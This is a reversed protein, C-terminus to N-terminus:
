SRRLCLSITVRDKKGSLGTMLSDAPLLGLQSYLGLFDLHNHAERILGDEIRCLASGEISIPEKGINSQATLTYTCTIWDGEELTKNVKIKMDKLLACIAQHFPKFDEPGVLTGDELGEAKGDPHFFEDIASADEQQWVRDFWTDIVEQKTRTQVASHEM